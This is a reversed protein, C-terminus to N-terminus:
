QDFRQTSALMTQEQASLATEISEGAAALRGFVMAPRNLRRIGPDPDSRMHRECIIIDAYGAACSLCTM